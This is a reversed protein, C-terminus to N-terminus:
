EPGTEYHQGSSSGSAGKGEDQKSKGHLMTLDEWGHSAVHLLIKAWSHVSKREYKYACPWFINHTFHFKFYVRLTNFLLLLLTHINMGWWQITLLTHAHTHTRARAHPTAWPAAAGGFGWGSQIWTVHGEKLRLRATLASCGPLVDGGWGGGGEEEEREVEREREGWLVCRIRETVVQLANSTFM